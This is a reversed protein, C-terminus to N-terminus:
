PTLHPWRPGERSRDWAGLRRAARVVRRLMRDGVRQVLLESPAGARQFDSTLLQYQTSGTAEVLPVWHVRGALRGLLEPLCRETVPGFHCAAVHILGAGWLRAGRTMARRVSGTAARVFRREVRLTRGRHRRRAELWSLDYPYDYLDMTVEADVYALEALQGAIRARRVPDPGRDGFPHRFHRPAGGRFAGVSELLSDCARVGELYRHEELASSAIHDETHNGLAFGSELWRRLCDEHGRARRGIVFATCAPVGAALLAERIRDMRGPDFETDDREFVSPADDITLAVPIAHSQM